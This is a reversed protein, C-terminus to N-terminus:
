YKRISAKIVGEVKLENDARIIPYDPNAPRLQVDNGQKHYYKLTWDGDVQALVIDGNRPTHGREVIVIDEQHIGAEIMSDGTVKLMFSREPHEILFEDLSLTDILEEEAPSPFGAQVYGLVPLGFRKGMPLLRGSADKILYGAQILKGALYYAANKSSFGYLDAMEGYSPMRGQERYFRRLPAVATELNSSAMDSM